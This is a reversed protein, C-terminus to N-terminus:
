ADDEAARAYPDNVALRRGILGLVLFVVICLLNVFLALPELVDMMGALPPPMTMGIHVFLERCSTAFDAFFLHAYVLYNLVTVMIGAVSVIFAKLFRWSSLSMLWAAALLACGLSAYAAWPVLGSWVSTSAAAFLVMYAKVPVAVVPPMSAVDKFLVDNFLGDSDRVVASTTFSYIEGAKGRTGMLDIMLGEGYMERSAEAFRFVRAYYYVNGDHVRFYHPTLDAADVNSVWDFTVRDYYGHLRAAGPVLVGWTLVGLLLYTIGGLVSAKPHRILYLLVFLLACGTVFPIAVLLGRLFFASTFPIHSNGAVLVRLDLGLVFLAAVALSGFVSIAFFLLIMKLSTKMTRISYWSRATFVIRKISLNTHLVCVRKGCTIGM